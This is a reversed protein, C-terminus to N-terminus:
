TRGLSFRFRQKLTKVERPCDVRWCEQTGHDRQDRFESELAIMLRVHNTSDWEAVDESTTDSTLELADDDFIDRAIVAIRSLVEHDNMSMGGVEKRKGLVVQGFLYKL